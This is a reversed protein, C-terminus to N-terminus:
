RRKGALINGSIKMRFGIETSGDARYSCWTFSFHWPTTHYFATETWTQGDLKGCITSTKKDANTFAINDYNCNSTEHINSPSQMEMNVQFM